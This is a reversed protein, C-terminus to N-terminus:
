DAQQQEEEAAPTDDAEQDGEDGEIEDAPEEANDAEAKAESAVPVIGADQETALREATALGWSGADALNDTWNQEDVALYVQEDGDYVRFQEEDALDSDDGPPRSVIESPAKPKPDAFDMARQDPEAAQERRASSFRKDDASVIVIRHGAMKYVDLLTEADTHEVKLKVELTEGKVAFQGLLTGEVTLSDEQAIVLVVKGVARRVTAEIHQITATQESQSMASWLKPRHKFLDLMLDRLDGFVTGSEFEAEEVLTTLRALRRDFVSEPDDGPAAPAQAPAAAGDEIPPLAEGSGDGTVEQALPATDVQAGQEVTDAPPTDPAKAETEGAPKAPTKSTPKRSM